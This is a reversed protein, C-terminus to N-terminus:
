SATSPRIRTIAYEWGHRQRDNLVLAHDHVIDSFERGAWGNPTELWSPGVVQLDERGHKRALEKPYSLHDDFWIFVAKQPAELMQRTTAGTLRAM